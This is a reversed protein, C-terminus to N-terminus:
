RRREVHVQHYAAAARRGLQLTDSEREV